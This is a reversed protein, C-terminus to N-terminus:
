AAEDIRVPRRPHDDDAAALPRALPRAPSLRPCPGRRGAPRARRRHRLAGGGRRRCPTTVLPPLTKGAKLQALAGAVLPDGPVLKDFAEYTEIALKKDANRSAWRAYADVVRLTRPDLKLAAELRQGSEKKVGAADLILGAHFDKFGTYWEPGQLADIAKVGARAEGSGFQSWASLLTANLEAIAGQGSRRLNSRATVYQKAKIARVGLVLRALTHEPDIRVIRRALQVAEEISGEALLTLFARELLEGNRPFLRM